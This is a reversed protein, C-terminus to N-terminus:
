EPYAPIEKCITRGTDPCFQAMPLYDQGSTKSTKSLKFDGYLYTGQRVPESYGSPTQRVVQVIRRTPPRRQSFQLISEDSNLDRDLNSWSDYESPKTQSESAFVLLMSRNLLAFM